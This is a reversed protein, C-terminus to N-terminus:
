VTTPGQYTTVLACLGTGVLAWRAAPRALVPAVVAVTRFVASTRTIRAPFGTQPGALMEFARTETMLGAIPWTTILRTGSLQGATMQTNSDTSFSTRGLASHAVTILHSLDEESVLILRVGSKNLKFVAPM